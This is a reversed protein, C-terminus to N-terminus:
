YECQLSTDSSIFLTLCYIVKFFFTIKNPLSNMMMLKTGEKHTLLIIEAVARSIGERYEVLEVPKIM